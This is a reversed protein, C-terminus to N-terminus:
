RGVWEGGMVRSSGALRGKGGDCGDMIEKFEMAVFEESAKQM